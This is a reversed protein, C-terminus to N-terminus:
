AGALSRSDLARAISQPHLLRPTLREAHLRRSIARLSLNFQSRLERARRIAAQEAPVPVLRSAEVRYGYPRSGGLYEGRAQKHRLATSTREGIAEREWQSVSGLVNLVLRGASSRTDIQEAVSLLAAKCFHEEVLEGLDRVSRTLRDLKAVLLGEAERKRLMGLAQQLGPRDLSKASAGEDRTLAVLELGYLAAYVRLNEEQAMLSVGLEAQSATSVRVYGVVRTRQGDTRTQKVRQRMSMRLLTHRNHAETLAPVWRSLSTRFVQSPDALRCLWLVPVLRDVSAPSPVGAAAISGSVGAESIPGENGELLPTVNKM